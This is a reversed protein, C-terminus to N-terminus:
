MKVVLYNKEIEFCSPSSRIGMIISIPVILCPFRSIRSGSVRLFDFGLCYLIHFTFPLELWVLAPHIHKWKGVLM